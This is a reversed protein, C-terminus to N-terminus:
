WGLINKKNKRSDIGDGGVSPVVGHGYSFEGEEM